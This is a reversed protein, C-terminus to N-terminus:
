LQITPLLNESQVIQGVFCSVRDTDGVIMMIAPLGDADMRETLWAFVQLDNKSPSTTTGAPHSHWEGVYQLAGDTTDMISEVKPKMGRAGRIYLMPWEESDPPSSITDVLYVIQRELDFSGILVGGTENPLKTDRLEHLRRLFHEDWRVTWEGMAVQTTASVPIEVRTVALTDDSRWVAVKADDQGLITRLARSSIAAHLAMADQPISSSVDRCSQGYRHRENTPAFHGALDTNTILARYYQMELSALRHRRAADEAIVVLDRGTPNVFVSVRRCSADLNDSLHRAVAVSASTDLVADASAFAASLADKKDKPNLVDAVIPFFAEDGDTLDNAIRAVCTAKHHGVAYEHLAHRALNHPFLRDNDIISWRGFGTRALNLIVQSGIAGAGVCAISRDNASVPLGNIASATTRSLTFIPDLLDLPANKGTRDAAPKPEWGINKDILTWLGIDTGVDCISTGTLFACLDTAEVPGDAHRKKPLRLLLLLSADLFKQEAVRDGDIQEKLTRISDRLEELLNMGADAAFQALTDLSAPRAQIVGHTQPTCTLVLVVYPLRTQEDAISAEDQVMLFLDHKDISTATVGLPKASDFDASLVNWPLVIHGTTGWLLPELPQDTAHLKGKATLALWTRIREVFRPAAWQRRLEHYSQDYLCLSRPLPNVRLNLHPVLPFDDRLALAEPISQDAHDFRAAIREFRKIPHATIQGVEVAVDFVVVDHDTETRCEIYTAYEIADVRLLRALDIAKPATLATIDGATGPPLLYSTTM